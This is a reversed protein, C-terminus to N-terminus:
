TWNSWIFHGNRHGHQRLRLDAAVHNSPYRNRNGRAYINTEPTWINHQGTYTSAEAVPRDSTWPHGVTHLSVETWLLIPSLASELVMPFFLKLYLVWVPFDLSNTRELVEQTISTKRKIGDHRQTDAYIEGQLFKGFLLCFNKFSSVSRECLEIIQM